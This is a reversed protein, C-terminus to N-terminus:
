LIQIFCKVLFNAHLIYIILRKIYFILESEMFHFVLLTTKSIGYFQQLFFLFPLSYQYTYFLSKLGNEKSFFGRIFIGFDWLSGAQYKSLIALGTFFGATLMWFREKKTIVDATLSRHFYDLALLWFTLLGTDPMIFFGAVVSNYFSANFLILAVIAAKSSSIRNVFNYVIVSNFVSFIIAGIRMFFDNHWQMNCTFLQIIWGVMPPHDFHSLDPYLAYTHYYVEDNSLPIIAALILKIAFFVIIILWAKIPIQKLLKSM